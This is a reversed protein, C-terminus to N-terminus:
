CGNDYIYKIYKVNICFLHISMSPFLTFSYFTSIPRSTSESRSINLAEYIWWLCGLQYRFYAFFTLEHIFLIIFLLTTSISPFSHVSVFFNYRKVDMKLKISRGNWILHWLLSNKRNCFLHRKRNEICFKNIQNHM